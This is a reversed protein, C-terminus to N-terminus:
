NFQSYYLEKYFGEKSVLEKHKGKQIIKGDKVVLILDANQITSLRHAIIFCTKNELLKKLAEQILVETRTDVNSTAEDLILMKADLLMARAITLLQKEGKSINIGGDSLITDFGNELRNVFTDIKSLKSVREVDEMTVNNAGYVINDYVSGEFLWTDQLVMAFSKRLDNRKIDDINVGDLKICGSTVDYFRMLLNVITTKGSGTPGVIAITKGKEAKFDVDKLVLKEPVYGFSVDQFEVNGVVEELSIDTEKDLKEEEGDILTFVREAAALASQLETFINAIENIPGSFKRSYLIFSQIKGLTFDSIVSLIGGFMCILSFSLNNVFNVGPGTIGGLYEAKYANYTADENIIDFRDIIEEEMGYAQITKLSAIMEENFGSLEGLKRTKMRFMPRSKKVMFKAFLLSIPITIVFVLVLIPSIIIMMILSVSVTIVSTIINILDSSLSTNVTDIDYSMKSIIDGTKNKDFFSVPMVQIKSFADKRMKYVTKKSITMMLISLVYSIISSSVYFIVMLLCYFYVNKFNVLGEGFEIADIAYGSLMPGVLSLINTCVTLVLALIILWKYYYLYDWLRKITYKTNKAKEAKTGRSRATPNSNM